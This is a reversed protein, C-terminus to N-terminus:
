EGRQARAPSATARRRAPRTTRCAAPVRSSATFVPAMLSGPTADHAHGLLHGLEHVVTPCFVDWDAWMSTSTPWRRLGLALTCDTYSAAPAALDNAGLPSAFTVWAASGPDLGLPVERQAVIRIRGWCPTVGWHRQAASAAVAIPGSGKAFAVEVRNAPGLGGTAPKAAQAPSPLALGALLAAATLTRSLAM